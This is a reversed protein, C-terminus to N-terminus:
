SAASATLRRHGAAGAAIPLFVRFSAGGGAREEVWARGGHLEAFRAVLSLGIGMGPSPDSAGSGMRFPEFIAERMGPPVGAGDDEVLILAGGPERRARVWITADDPTHRVANMILNEVIREVKAGDLPVVVSQAQVELRRHILPQLGEAVATVLAGLDTPSLVPDVIGRNLRDLDLLDTVLRNLKRANAALRDALDRADEESVGLEERRQLTLAGGLIATLPTRMDHSVAQLFTNKVEDAAKLREVADREGQLARDTERQAAQRRRAHWVMAVFISAMLPVETSEDLGALGVHGLLIPRVLGYGTFVMVAVLTLITSELRWMRFGYLISLSLWVLHFPVTQWSHLWLMVGVNAAAFLGWAIEPWRRRILAGLHMSSTTM